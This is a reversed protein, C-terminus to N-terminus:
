SVLEMSWFGKSALLSEGSPENGQECCGAVPGKGSSSANLGRGGVM